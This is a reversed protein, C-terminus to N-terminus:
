SLSPRRIENLIRAFMETSRMRIGKPDLGRLYSLDEWWIWAFIESVVVDTDVDPSVTGDVKGLDILRAVTDMIQNQTTTVHERLRDEPRWLNFQFMPANFGSIDSSFLPAHTEAMRRLFADTPLDALPEIWQFVRGALSDYAAILIEDKSGFHKYLAADTVGVGRSIVALSAGQIGYKDIIDITVRIIQQKRVASQHRRPAALTEAPKEPATRNM